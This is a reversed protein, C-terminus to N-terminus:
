TQSLILVYFLLIVLMYLSFHTENYLFATKLGPQVVETTSIWSIQSCRSLCGLKVWRPCYFNEQIEESPLLTFLGETM